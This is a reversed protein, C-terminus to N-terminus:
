PHMLAFARAMMRLFYVLYALFSIFQLSVLILQIPPWHTGFQFSLWAAVSHFLIFGPILLAINLHQDSRVLVFLKNLKEHDAGAARRYILRQDVIFLLWVVLAFGAFMAYWLVPSGIQGFTVAEVFAAGFYFFNHTFDLPWRILTLTHGISRSWFLIILLLGNALYPLDQIRGHSIIGSASECLFSLAVGQIISTLTLEINIILSDLQSRNGILSEFRAPQTPASM